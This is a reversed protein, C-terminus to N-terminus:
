CERISGPNGRNVLRRIEPDVNVYKFTPPLEMHENYYAVIFKRKFNSATDSDAGPALPHYSTGYKFMERLGAEVDVIPYNHLKEQRIQVILYPIRQM